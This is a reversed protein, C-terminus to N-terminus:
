WFVSQTRVKPFRAADMQYAPTAAIRDFTAWTPTWARRMWPEFRKPMPTEYSPNLHAFGPPMEEGARLASQVIAFAQEQSTTRWRRELWGDADLLRLAFGLSPKRGLAYDLLEYLQDSCSGLAARCVSPRPAGKVRPRGTCRAGRLKDAKPSGEVHPADSVRLSECFTRARYADARVLRFTKVYSACDGWCPACDSVNVRLRCELWSLACRAAPARAAAAECRPPREARKARLERGFLARM